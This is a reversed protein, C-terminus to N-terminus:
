SDGADQAGELIIGVDRVSIHQFLHFLVKRRHHKRGRDGLVDTEFFRM